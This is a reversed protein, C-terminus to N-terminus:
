VIQNTIDIEPYYPYIRELVMEELGKVNWENEPKRLEANIKQALEDYKKESTENKKFDCSQMLEMIKRGTLLGEKGVKVIDGFFINVKERDEILVGGSEGSVFADVSDKIKKVIRGNGQIGTRESIRILSTITYGYDKACTGDM